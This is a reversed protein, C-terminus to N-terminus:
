AAKKRSGKIRQAMYYLFEDNIKRERIVQKLKSQANLFYPVNAGYSKCNKRFCQKTYINKLFNIKQKKPLFMLFSVTLVAILLKLGKNNNNKM